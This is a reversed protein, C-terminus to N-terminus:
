GRGRQLCARDLDGQRIFYDAHCEDAIGTTDSLDSAMVLSSGEGAASSAAECHADSASLEGEMARTM